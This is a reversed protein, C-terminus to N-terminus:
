HFNWESISTTIAVRADRADNQHIPLPALFANTEPHTSCYTSVYMYMKM